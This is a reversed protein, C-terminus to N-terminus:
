ITVNNAFITVNGTVFNTLSPSIKSSSRWSIISSISSCPCTSSSFASKNCSVMVYVVVSAYSIIVGRTSKYAKSILSSISSIM